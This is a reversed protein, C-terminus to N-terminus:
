KNLCYGEDKLPLMSLWILAGKEIHIDNLKLKEDSLSYRTVNSKQTNQRFKELKINAQLMKIEERNVNYITNRELQLKILSATVARSNNYENEAIDCFISIGIEDYKVPISILKREMENCFHGDPVNPVFKTDVAQVLKGLHRCINPVTM